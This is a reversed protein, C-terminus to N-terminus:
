EVIRYRTLMERIVDTIFVNYWNASRIENWIASSWLSQTRFCSVGHSSRDAIFHYRSSYYCIPYRAFNRTIIGTELMQFSKFHPLWDRWRVLLRDLKVNSHLRSTLFTKEFSKNAAESYINNKNWECEFNLITESSLPRCLDETYWDLDSSAPARM